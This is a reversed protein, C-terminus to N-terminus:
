LRLLVVMLLEFIGAYVETEMLSYLVIHQWILGNSTHNSFVCFVGCVERGM